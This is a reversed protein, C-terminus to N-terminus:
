SALVQDVPANETFVSHLVVNDSFYNVGVNNKLAIQLQSAAPGPAQAQLLPNLVLFSSICYRTPDSGAVSRRVQRCFVHAGISWPQSNPLSSTM